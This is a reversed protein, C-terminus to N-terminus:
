EPLRVTARYFRAPASNTPQLWLMAGTGPVDIWPPLPRWDGGGPSGQREITYRRGAASPVGLWLAPPSPEIARIM